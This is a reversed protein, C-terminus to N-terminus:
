ERKFKDEMEVFVTALYARNPIEYLNSIESYQHGEGYLTNMFMLSRRLIDICEQDYRNVCYQLLAFVSFVMEQQSIDGRFQTKIARHMQDVYYLKCIIRAHSNVSQDTSLEMVDNIEAIELINSYRAIPKEIVKGTMHLLVRASTASNKDKPDLIHLIKAYYHLVLRALEPLSFELKEINM